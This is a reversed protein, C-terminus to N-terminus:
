LKDRVFAGAFREDDIYRQEQLQQLVKPRDAEPVGWTRMLRMADGSSKEARSCLRALAAFAEEASRQRPKRIEESM